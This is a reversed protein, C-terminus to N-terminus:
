ATMIPKVGSMRAAIAHGNKLGSDNRGIKVGCALAYCSAAACMAVAPYGALATSRAPPYAERRELDPAAGARGSIPM